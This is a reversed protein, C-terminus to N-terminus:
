LASVPERAARASFHDLVGMNYHHCQMVKFKKGEWLIIDAQRGDAGEQSTYLEEASYIKIWEKTRDGEPMQLIEHFKLPQVNAEIEVEVAEGEVWRGGIWQGPTAREIPLKVKGVWRFVPKSRNVIVVAVM